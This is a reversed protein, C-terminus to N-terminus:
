LIIVKIIQLNEEQIQSQRRFKGLIENTKKEGENAALVMEQQARETTNKVVKRLEDNELRLLENEEQAQRLNLQSNHKEDLYEKTINLNLMESKQVRKQLDDM